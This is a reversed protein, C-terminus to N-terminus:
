LRQTRTIAALTRHLKESAGLIAYEREMVREDLEFHLPQGDYYTFKGGAEPLILAVPAIDWIKTKLNVCAGLRGDITYCFDVLSNTARTNRVVAAVRFLLDVSRRSRRDPAPDFGFACLVKNSKTEATVHVRKGNRWAGQGAAAFYLTDELPLYMAALIPKAGRLLAIQFGFWALGAVFNSTGDLPDIIWTYESGQWLRGSEEAIINHTPFRRHLLQLVRKEAALDADCVISSPNDKQRPHILKGFYGRLVKGGIDVTELLTRRLLAAGAGSGAASRANSRVSKRGVVM